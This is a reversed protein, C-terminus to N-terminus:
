EIRTETKSQFIRRLSQKLSSETLIYSEYLPKKAPSRVTQKVHFYSMKQNKGNVM